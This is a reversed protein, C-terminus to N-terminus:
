FQVEVFMNAASVGDLDRTLTIAQGTSTTGFDNATIRVSHGAPIFTGDNMIPRASIGNWKSLFPSRLVKTAGDGSNWQVKERAWFVRKEANPMAGYWRCTSLECAGSNYVAPGIAHGILSYVGDDRIEFRCVSFAVRAEFELQFLHRQQSGWFGQGVAYGSEFHCLSYHGGSNDFRGHLGLYDFSSHSAFFGPGSQRVDVGVLSNSMVGDIFNMREGFESPVTGGNQAANGNLNWCVGCQDMHVDVCTHFYSNNNTSDIGYYFKEIRVHEIRTRVGSWMLGTATNTPYSAQTASNPGRLTLHQLPVTYDGTSTVAVVSTGAASFDLITREMGQGILRVLGTGTLGTNCKIAAGPLVVAGEGWTTSVYNILAQLNARDDTSGNATIATLGSGAPPALAYISQPPVSGAELATLRTNADAQNAEWRNADGKDILNSANTGGSEAKDLWAGDAKATYAM